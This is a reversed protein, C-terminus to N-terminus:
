AVIEILIGEPTKAVAEYYGDGTTRPWSVLLGAEAFRQAARDVSDRGGVSLAIHSWGVDEAGTPAGVWPGEMLEVQLDSEPLTVFRSAFGERRRSEYREGIKADFFEAWFRAAQEVDRTWLAVHALKM